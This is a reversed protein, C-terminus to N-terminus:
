TTSVHLERGTTPRSLRRRVRGLVARLAAGPRRAADPVVELLHERRVYLTLEGRDVVVQEIADGFDATRSCRAASRTPSTTSTAATRARAHVADAARRVLGGFGSTDGTGAVGFM